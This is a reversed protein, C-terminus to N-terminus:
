IVYNKSFGVLNSTYNYLVPNKSKVGIVRTIGYISSSAIAISTNSMHYIDLYNADYGHLTERQTSTSTQLIDVRVQNSTTAHESSSEFYLYDFQTYDNTFTVEGSTVPTESTFIVEEVEHDQAYEIPDKIYTRAIETIVIKTQENNLNPNGNAILIKAHVLIDETPTYIVPSSYSPIQSTNYSCCATSIRNNNSDVLEIVVRSNAISTYADVSILYKIGATLAITHNTTDLTIGNNSTITDFPVIMDVVVSGTDIPSSLTIEASHGESGVVSRENLSAIDVIVSSDDYVTTEMDNIKINGNTESSEVEPIVIDVNKDADPAVNTGNVSISEIVNLDGTGSSGSSSIPLGNYTMNGDEDEGIKDIENQNEHVYESHAHVLDAKGDLGNKVAKNTIPNTSTNSLVTDVTVNELGELKAKEETTYSATAANLISSNAHTHRATTNSDVDAKYLDTFDNKSLGKGDIVDVKQLLLADTATKTYVNSMDVSTSGLNSWEGNIYMHQTYVTSDDVQILYITSTSIDTTPLETVIEATLKNINGVLADIETQNYLENKSYYNTLNSVTNKIFEEDNTLDSIKIPITIAINKNEDPTIETGNVSVSEIINSEGDTAISDIKVILEDLADNVNTVDTLSDNTYTINNAVESPLHGADIESGDSMTCILNGDTNINVNSISKGDTPEQFTIDCTTGDTFTLHLVNGDLAHTAVGTLVSTTYSKAAGLTISDM